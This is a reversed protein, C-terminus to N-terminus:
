NFLGDGISEFVQERTLGTVPRDIVDAFGSLESMSLDVDPFRGMRRQCRQRVSLHRQCRQRQSFRREVDKAKTLCRRSQPNTKSMKWVASPDKEQVKDKADKDHTYAHFCKNLYKNPYEFCLYIDHWLHCYTLRSRSPYSLERTCLRAHYPHPSGKRCSRACWFFDETAADKGEM